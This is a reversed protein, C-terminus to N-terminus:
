FTDTGTNFNISTTSFTVTNPNAGCATNFATLTASTGSGPDVCGVGAFTVALAGTPLALFGAVVLTAGLMNKIKMMGGLYQWSIERAAVDSGHSREISRHM